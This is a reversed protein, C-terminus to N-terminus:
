MLEKEEKMTYAKMADAYSNLRESVLHSVTGEKEIPGAKAGTLIEMGDDVSDIAWITFKKQKVSELVEEKLMLNKVNAAPIIVGQEGTLGILRCVEFYGEIKENVGGIPQIEGKQNVSGTVAIGQKIPLGSLSSLLTFLEASSASDGEIESYSQEFVLRAALSVPKQQMYKESLYGALIMVGKTHIPGSLEAEREIAIVGERGINVSCTIRNPHGFALDGMDLVSLGNVQGTKRGAIDIFFQKSAILEELKHQILNSRYSKEEIAGTIQPASITGAKVEMSYHNAERIIDAIHDFATSLKEQDNVLRSGYEIIKALAGADPMNLNENECTALAFNIYVSISKDSRIMEDDFDAKVKFLTKFDPEHLYLLQYYVPSGILIVKLNLPIAEPKLTRLAGPNWQDSADEIIIEKNKLARKLGEWAFYNQLLEEVRIILYGGNASHLAGKRIMSFDTRLTGLHSEMEVRGLLNNYTPNHEVIVPAGKLDSNDVLVNVEYRKLFPKTKPTAVEVGKNHSTLFEALNELIDEKVSKLYAVVEVLAKYKAATDDILSSICRQAVEAELDTLRKNVEKDQKKLENLETQMEDLFKDQKKSIEDQQAQPLSNFQKDTVRKGDMMPFTMIEWPTQKIMLSQKEAKEQLAALVEAQHQEFTETIKKRRDAYEASEFCKYLTQLVDPILSKMDKRLAVAKGAPLSLKKPQYADKFNRVYCWDCPIPEGNAIEDVFKKVTTLKRTGSRGSAYINFGTAKMAVGLKLAKSARDQGVIENVPSSFLRNNEPIIGPNCIKRLEEATLIRKM